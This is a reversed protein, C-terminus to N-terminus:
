SKFVCYDTKQLYAKFLTKAQAEPLLGLMDLWYEKVYKVDDPDWPFRRPTNPTGPLMTNPDSDVDSSMHRAQREMLDSLSTMVAQAEVPTSLKVLCNAIEMLLSPYELPEFAETGRGLAEENQPVHIGHATMEREFLRRLSPKVSPDNWRARRCLAEPQNADQLAALLVPRTDFGCVRCLVLLKHDSVPQGSAKREALMEAMDDSMAVHIHRPLDDPISPASQDSLGKELITREYTAQDAQPLPEYLSLSNSLLLPLESWRPVLVHIGALLIIWSVPLIRSLMRVLNTRASVTTGTRAFFQRLVYWSSLRCDPIHVATLGLLLLTVCCALLRLWSIPPLLTFLGSMFLILLLGQVCRNRQVSAVPWMIGWLSLAGAMGILCLLGNLKSALSLQLAVLILFGISGLVFVLYAWLGPGPGRARGRLTNVITVLVWLCPLSALMLGPLTLILWMMALTMLDEIEPDNLQLLAFYRSARLRRQKTETESLDYRGLLTRECPGSLLTGDILGEYDRASEIVRMSVESLVTCFDRLLVPDSSEMTIFWRRYTKTLDEYRFCLNLGGTKAQSRALLGIGSLVCLREVRAEYLEIPRYLVAAANAQEFCSVAERIQALTQAAHCLVWGKMSYYYANDPNLAQLRDVAALAARTDVLEAKTLQWVLRALFFENDPYKALLVALDQENPETTCCTWVHAAEPDTAAATERLTLYSKGGGIKEVYERAIGALQWGFKLNPIGSLTLIGCVALVFIWTKDRTRMSFWELVPRM